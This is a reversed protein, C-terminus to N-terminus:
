SSALVMHVLQDCNASDARNIQLFLNGFRAGGKIKGERFNRGLGSWVERFKM